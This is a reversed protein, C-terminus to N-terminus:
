GEWESCELIGSGGGKLNKMQSQSLTNKTNKIVSKISRKM